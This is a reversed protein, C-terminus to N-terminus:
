IIYINTYLKACAARGVHKSMEFTTLHSSSLMYLVNDHNIIHEQPEGDFVFRVCPM